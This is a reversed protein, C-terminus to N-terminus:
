RRSRVHPSRRRSSAETSMRYGKDTLRVVIAPGGDYFSSLTIIGNKVLREVEEDTCGIEYRKPLYGNKQTYHAVFACVEYADRVPSEGSGGVTETGTPAQRAGRHAAPHDARVQYLWQGRLWPM